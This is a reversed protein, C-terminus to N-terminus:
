KRNKPITSKATNSDSVQVGKPGIAATINRRNPEKVYYQRRSERLDKKYEQRTFTGKRLAIGKKAWAEVLKSFETEDACKTLAGLLDETGKIRRLHDFFIGLESVTFLDLLKETKSSKAVLRLLEEEVKTGNSIMLINELKKADRKGSWPPPAICLLLDFRNARTIAPDLQQKHNTAMLFVVGAQDWLDTLKPLM